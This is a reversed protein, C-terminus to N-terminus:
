KVIEWDKLLSGFPAYLVRDNCSVLFGDAFPVAGNFRSGKGDGPIIRDDNVPFKKFWSGPENTDPGVGAIRVTGAPTGDTWWLADEGWETTNFRANGVTAKRVVREKATSVLAWDSSVGEIMISGVSDASAGSENPLVVEYKGLLPDGCLLAMAGPAPFMEQLHKWADSGGGREVRKQLQALNPSQAEALPTKTMVLAGRSIRPAMFDNLPDFQAVRRSGSPAKLNVGASQALFAQEKFAALDIWQTGAPTGDTRLFMNPADSKLGGNDRDSVRTFAYWAQDQHVFSMRPTRDAAYALQTPAENNQGTIWLGDRWFTVQDKLTHTYRLTSATLPAVPSYSPGPKGKRNLDRLIMQTGASTGDSVWIELGRPFDMNRKIPTTPKIWHEVAFYVKDEHTGILSCYKAWLKEATDGDPTYLPVSEGDPTLLLVRNDILVVCREGFAMMQSAMGEIVEQTSRTAGDMVRIHHYTRGSDRLQAAFYLYNEAVCHRLNFSAYFQNNSFVASGNGTSRSKTPAPDSSAQQQSDSSGLTNQIGRNLWDNLGDVVPSTGDAECGMLTAGFCLLLSRSVSRCSIRM